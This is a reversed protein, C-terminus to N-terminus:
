QGCFTNSVLTNFSMIQGDSALTRTPYINSMSLYVIRGASAAALTNVNDSGDTM